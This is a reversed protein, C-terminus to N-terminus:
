HLPIQAPVHVAVPTAIPNVHIIVLPGVMDPLVHHPCTNNTSSSYKDLLQKKMKEISGPKCPFPLKSSLSPPMTRLPCGCEAVSRNAAIKDAHFTTLQAGGVKPFDAPIMQLQVM